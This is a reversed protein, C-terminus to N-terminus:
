DGPWRLKSGGGNGFLGGLSPAVVPKAFAAKHVPRPQAPRPETRNEARRVPPKPTDVRQPPEPVAQAPQEAIDAKEDTLEAVKPEGEAAKSAVVTETESAPRQRQNQQEITENMAYRRHRDMESVSWPEPKCTCGGVQSKRYKFANPLKSYARGTLDVMQAADPESNPRYFLRAEEGCSSRCRNADRHFTSRSVGNSIPFYYGDCMRVCMTQFNGARSTGGGSENSPSAQRYPNFVPARYGYLPPVPPAQPSPAPAFQQQSGGGFLSDLFGQAASATPVLLPVLLIAKFRASRWMSRM